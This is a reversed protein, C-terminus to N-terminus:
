DAAPSTRLRAPDKQRRSISVAGPCRGPPKEQHTLGGLGGCTARILDVLPVADEPHPQGAKPRIPTGDEHDDQGLGDDMPTLVTELQIPPPLRPGPLGAARQDIGLDALQNLTHRPLIWKPPSWADLRFEPEKAVVHRLGSHVLVLDAM